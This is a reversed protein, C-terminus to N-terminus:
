EKVALDILLYYKLLDRPNKTLNQRMRTIDSFITTNELNLLATKNQIFTYLKKYFYLIVEMMKNQMDLNVFTDFKSFSDQQLFTIRIIQGIKIILKQNDPLLDEGILKVIELLKNEENLLNIILARNTLFNPSVQDYYYTSLSDLYESYSLNWNVAPYHRSYALSKDLAWFSRIYRKTNQTVPESFDGGQPSLAGIISLSGITNNYNLVKGAREYFSALRSSLYAPFGEEAPIEELRGSIERLAEAWRSTSDAMLAVNYGMERYYEGIAVGLYISSERASVPMNSTNAILITREMISTNTRPDIIKPFENLVDTMENGREGCGVYIIIDADCWKAIQHQLMTKGAGFGGPVCASGGKALPFLTDLVRQGTILPENLALRDKSKRAVKIPFTTKMVVDFLRSDALKVRIVWDSVRFSSGANNVEVVLGQTQPFMLKHVVTLSEQCLGYFDGYRLIDGVQVLIKVEWLKEEDITTILPRPHLFYGDENELIRLNRGIGDYISGILGPGLDVSLPHNTRKIPELPALMTTTEFVQITTLTEDIAIVEGILAKNGVYVVEGMLLADDKNNLCKVIPGNISYINNM